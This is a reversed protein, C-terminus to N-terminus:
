ALDVCATVGLEGWCMDRGFVSLCSSSPGDFVGDDFIGGFVFCCSLRGDTSCSAVRRALVFYSLTHPVKAAYAVGRVRRVQAMATLNIPKLAKVIPCRLVVEGGGEPRAGRRVVRLELGEATYSGPTVIGYGSSQYTM